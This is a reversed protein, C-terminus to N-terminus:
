NFSVVSQMLKDVVIYLLFFSVYEKVDKTKVAKYSCYAPYMLGFVMRNILDICVVFCM